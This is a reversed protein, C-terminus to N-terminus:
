RRPIVSLLMPLSIALLWCFLAIPIYQFENKPTHGTGARALLILAIVILLVQVYLM